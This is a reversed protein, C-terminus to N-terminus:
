RGAPSVARVELRGDAVVATPARWVGPEALPDAPLLVVAAREGLRLLGTRGRIGPARAASSTAARLAGLRGAGAEAIRDLERPDVGPHTGPGGFDTGYRIEVGASLLTAANDAVARGMGRSFFTQLTSVVAVGREAIRGILADSLREVPTHALEDVGADVARRVMEASLAHAVTALGAGHAAEVIARVVRPSPVPRGNRPELAIKIVDAGETALRHVVMRAQGPSDVAATFGARDAAVGPYGDPATLVPGAVAVFPRGPPPLRHGTRWRRAVDAPAGLDRVAVLGAGLCDDITGASLHVHADIIGPGIWHGRGGLVPLDVPLTADRPGLYRVIGKGDVVVVGDQPDAQGGPWVTGLLLVGRGLSGSRIGSTAIPVTDATPDIPPAAPAAVGARLVGRLRARGPMDYDQGV